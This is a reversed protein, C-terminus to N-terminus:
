NGAGLEYETELELLREEKHRGTVPALTMPLLALNLHSRGLTQYRSRGTVLELSYLRKIPRRINTSLGRTVVKVVAGQVNGDGGWMLEKVRGLKWLGRPLNEDHVLVLDGVCVHTNVGKLRPTYCHAERLQIVAAIEKAAAKFTKANDSVMIRPFGRRAAFHRFCCIFTETTLNPVIDLHVARTVCCTYLCMWVKKPSSSALDRM